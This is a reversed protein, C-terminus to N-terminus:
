AETRLLQNPRKQLQARAYFVLSVLAVLSAALFLVKGGAVDLVLGGILPALAFGLSCLSAAGFYSAKLHSPAMKDIFINLNAFLIAEGVSLVFTAYLWGNFHHVPNFAMMLQSIFLLGIGCYLRQQIVWHSMLKLLPFQFTVIVLANLVIIASILQALQEVNSRTLYQILSADGQAYVLFILANAVLVYIFARDQKLLRLLNLFDLAKTKSHVTRVSKTQYVAILAIGLAFYAIGTISFGIQEGTFGLWIGVLPGIASGLNVFFYLMQLALERVDQDPLEDSLLAKGPADWLSRPLSALVVSAGFWWLSDAISLSLFAIVGLLIASLLIPLRGYRDALNGTYFGLLIAIVSSGTLMLGVQSASLAFKQYLIVALFPWVMYFAGRVFFNGILLVWVVPTFKRANNLEM